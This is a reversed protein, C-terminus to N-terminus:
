KKIINWNIEENTSAIILNRGTATGMIGKNSFFKIDRLNQKTPSTQEIWQGFILEASLLLFLITLYTKM